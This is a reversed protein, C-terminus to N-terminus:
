EDCGRVLCVGFVIVMVIDVGVSVATATSIFAQGYIGILALYILKMEIAVALVLRRVPSDFASWILMLGITGALAGWNRVVIEAVPGDLSTGFMSVLASQPAFAAYFMTSTLLGSVILIWRTM